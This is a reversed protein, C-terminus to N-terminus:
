SVNGSLRGAFREDICHGAAGAIGGQTGLGLSFVGTMYHLADALEMAEVPLARMRDLEYFAETLTAAVVENRVAASM